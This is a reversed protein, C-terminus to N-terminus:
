TLLCRPPLALWLAMWLLSPWLACSSCLQQQLQMHCTALLVPVQTNCFLRPLTNPLCPMVIQELWSCLQQCFLFSFLLSSSLLFPFLLFSHHCPSHSLLSLLCHSSLQCRLIFLIFVLRTSIQRICTSAAVALALALYDGALVYRFTFTFTVFETHLFMFFLLSLPLSLSLPLAPFPSLFIWKFNTVFAFITRATHCSTSSGGRSSSCPTHGLRAYVACLQRASLVCMCM